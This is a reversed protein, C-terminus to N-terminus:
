CSCNKGCNCKKNDNMPCNKGTKKCSQPEAAFGASCIAAALISFLIKTYNKMLGTEAAIRFSALPFIAMAGRPTVQRPDRKPKGQKKRGMGAFGVASVNSGAKAEAAPHPAGADQQSTEALGSYRDLTLPAGLGCPFV